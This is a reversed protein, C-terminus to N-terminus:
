WDMYQSSPIPEHFYYSAIVGCSVVGVTDGNLNLRKIFSWTPNWEWTEVTPDPALLQGSLLQVNQIRINGDQDRNWSSQYTM